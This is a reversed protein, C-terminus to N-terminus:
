APQQLAEARFYATDPEGAMMAFLKESNKKFYDSNAYADFNEQTQWEEYLLFTDKQVVDSYLAFRECGVFKQKVEVMEQKALDVFAASAEPKVNVLVRIVIM